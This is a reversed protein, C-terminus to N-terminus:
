KKRRNDSYENFINYGEPFYTKIFEQKQVRDFWVVPYTEALKSFSHMNKWQYTSLSLGKIDRKSCVIKGNVKSIHQKCSWDLSVNIRRDFLEWNLRECIDRKIIRGTGIPEGKRMLDMYGPWFYLATMNYKQIDYFYLGATGIMDGEEKMLEEAWTDCIWDSSGLIMIADPNYDKARMICLQWKEGLPVYKPVMIFEAGAKECVKKESETHGCCITKVPITQKELRKITHYLLTERGSVPIVAIIM